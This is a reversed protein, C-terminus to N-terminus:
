LLFPDLKARASAHDLLCLDLLAVGAAKRRRKRRGIEALCEDPHSECFRLLDFLSYAKVWGPRRTHRLAALAVKPVGLSYAMTSCIEPHM